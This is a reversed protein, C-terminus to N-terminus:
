EVLREVPMQFETVFASPDLNPDFVHHIQRTSGFNQFDKEEVWSGLAQYAQNATEFSGQYTVSAVLDLQPLEYVKVRENGPVAYELQEIVEVEFGQEPDNDQSFHWLVMSPRVKTFGFQALYSRLEGFLGSLIGYQPVKQRISAVLMPEVKKLTVEYNGTLAMEIGGSELQALWNELRKLHLRIQELQEQFEAQKLLLMGKLQETTLERDLMLGIQELSLGLEKLALIRNLRPLQTTSYYRYGTFSDIEQPKLLGLDEYHHLTRISVQGLRAFEGIKFM